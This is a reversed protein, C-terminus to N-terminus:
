QTKIINIIKKMVEFTSFEQDETPNYEVIELGICKPDFVVGQLFEIVDKLELGGGEPTGTGPCYTPDMGDIDLSIGFLPYTELLLNKSKVFNEVGNYSHRKRHYAINVGLRQLLIEEGEEYSRIGTQIIANPKLTPPNRVLNVFENDGSGLLAAVPMGHPNGSPTTEYTHADMHADIWLLGFDKDANKVGSWTGMAISHDGGIVLLFHGHRLANEARDRIWGAVKLAFDRRQKISYDQSKQHSDLHWNAFYVEAHIKPNDLLEKLIQSQLVTMAGDATSFKGAGWGSAALIVTVHRM